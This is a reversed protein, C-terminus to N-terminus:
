MELFVLFLPDQEVSALEHVMNLELVATWTGRGACFGHLVNYPCVSARLRNGIIEEVVKWLLELMGICRTDINVKPILVLITWGLKRPIEGHQWMFQTINM